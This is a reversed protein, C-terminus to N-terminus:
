KGENYKDNGSIINYMYNIQKDIKQRGMCVSKFKRFATKSLLGDTKGMEDTQEGAKRAVLGTDLMTYDYLSTSILDIFAYVKHKRM